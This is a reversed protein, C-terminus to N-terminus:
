DERSKSIWRKNESLCKDRINILQMERDVSSIRQQM